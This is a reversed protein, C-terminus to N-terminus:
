WIEWSYVPNNMIGQRYTLRMNCDKGGNLHVSKTFHTLSNQIIWTKDNPSQVHISSCKITNKPQREFM